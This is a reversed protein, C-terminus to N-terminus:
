SASNTEQCVLQTAEDVEHMRAKRRRQSSQADEEAGWLGSGDDRGRTVATEPESQGSTSPTKAHNESGQLNFDDFLTWNM